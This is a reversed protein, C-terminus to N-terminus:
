PPEGDFERDETSHADIAKQSARVVRKIEQVSTALLRMPKLFEKGADINNNNAAPGEINHQFQSAQCKIPLPTYDYQAATWEM